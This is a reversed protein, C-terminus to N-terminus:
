PLWTFPNEDRILIGNKVYFCWTEKYSVIFHRLRPFASFARYDAISLNPGSKPHTHWTAVVDPQTIKSIELAFFNEPDPHLNECLVVEGGKLIVGCAEPGPANYQQRLAQELM